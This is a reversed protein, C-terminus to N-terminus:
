AGSAGHEGAQSLGAELVALADAPPGVHAIRGHDVVAAVDVLDLIRDVQQESILLTVGAEKLARLSAYVEDLINPALGLSPEDAMLLKPPAVFAPALSLLRQQGGSLTGARVRRREALLDFRDYVEQLLAKRRSRPQALLSVKLNEEVSLSSFVGRGEPIHLVGHRRVQEAHWRRVAVGDIRMTGSTIPVLGSIVRAITSKGAGNQGLLGVAQGEAIELDVDYLARFPGYSANVKEMSLIVSM